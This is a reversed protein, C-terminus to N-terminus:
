HMLEASLAADQLHSYVAAEDVDPVRSDGRERESRERLASREALYKGGVDSSVFPCPM